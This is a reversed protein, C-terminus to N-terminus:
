IKWRNGCIQCVAESHTKSSTKRPKFIKIILWPVTLFVWMVPELWWGVLLWYMMGHKKNKTTTVAQVSVNESKCKQCKM